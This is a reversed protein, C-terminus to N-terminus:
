SCRTLLEKAESQQTESGEDIVESLIERAGEWDEMDIYARALELKNGVMEDGLEDTVAEPMDGFGLASLEDYQKDLNLSAEDSAPEPEEAAEAAVALETVDDVPVAEAVVDEAMTEDPLTFDLDFDLDGEDDLTEEESSLSTIDFDGDMELMGDDDAQVESSPAVKEEVPPAAEETELLQEGFDQTM